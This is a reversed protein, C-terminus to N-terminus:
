LNVKVGFGPGDPIELCGNKIVAGSVPDEKMRVFEGVEAAWWVNPTSLIFHAQVVDIMQSGPTTGVVCGLHFAECLAAIKKARHIGGMKILKISIFDAAGAEIVRVADAMSIVSEDVEIPINVRERVYALGRINEKFVPQEVLAVGLQELGKIFEVAEKPSYSQNADVTLTASDSVAERIAKIREIDSKRGEGVKIKLAKFGERVLALADNAMAKPEKISVMRMVPIPRTKSSGILSRVPVGSAKGILDYLALDIGAKARYNGSVERDMDAIIDEMDFPSRGKLLKSFTGEIVHVVSAQSEGSIFLAGSTTCGRGVLGKDTLIDVFIMRAGTFSGTAIKWNQDKYPLEIAQAKVDTIIM